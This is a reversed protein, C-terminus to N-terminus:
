IGISYEYKYTFLARLETRLVCRMYQEFMFDMFENRYFDNVFFVRECEVGKQNRQRSHCRSINRRM